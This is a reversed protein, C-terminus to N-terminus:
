AELAAIEAEAEAKKALAAALKKENETQLAAARMTTLTAIDGADFATSADALLKSLRSCEATAAATRADAEALADAADDAARKADAVLNAVASEHRLNLANAQKLRLSLDTVSSFFAALGENFEAETLVHAAEFVSGIPKRDKTVSLLLDIEIM